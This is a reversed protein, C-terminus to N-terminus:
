SLIQFTFAIGILIVFGAVVKKFMSSSFLKLVQKGVITGLLACVIVIFFELPLQTFVDRQLSFYIPIRTIDIALAIVTSTGIFEEKTINYNLLYASRIAGQNGVLGGLFGSFFGGALDFKKPVTFKVNPPLLEGAGLIILVIGLFVKLTTSIMFSQMLAGAIAGAISLIGFKKIISRNIHKRFLIFKFLNNCLHVVAVLLIALKVDYILAFVPTLITALGFGALLTVVSALFTALYIWIDQLM